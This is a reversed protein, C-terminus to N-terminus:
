RRPRTTGSELLQAPELEGLLVGLARRWRGLLLERHGLDSTLITTMTLGTLLEITFEVLTPMRPDAAREPGVLELLMTHVGGFIQREVPVLAARLEPDTRAAVWLELAAFFVPGNLDRWVLDVAATLRDAGDSLAAAERRVGALRQEALHEVAGVMLGARTPFHHLLTGRAVGARAQVEAVTTAAYGQALLSEVTADLLRARTTARREAQTRRPTAAM